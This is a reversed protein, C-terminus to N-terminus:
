YNIINLVKEHIKTVRNEKSFREESIKSMKKKKLTPNSAKENYLRM